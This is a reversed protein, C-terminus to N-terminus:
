KVGGLYKRFEKSNLCSMALALAFADVIREEEHDPIDIGYEEVAAHFFEHLTVFLEVGPQMGDEVELKKLKKGRHALGYVDDNGHKLDSVFYLVYDAVGIKVKIAKKADKM